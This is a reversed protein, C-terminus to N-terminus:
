IDIIWKIVKLYEVYWIYYVAYVYIYDDRVLIIYYNKIVYILLSFFIDIEFM